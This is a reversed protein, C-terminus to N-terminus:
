YEIPLLSQPKYEMTQIIYEVATPYQEKYATMESKYSNGLTNMVVQLAGEHSAM